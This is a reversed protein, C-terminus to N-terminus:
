LLLSVAPITLLSLMTTSFVFLSATEEDLDYTNALIPLLTAAPMASLLVTVGLLVGDHVFPKLAALFILPIVLLKVVIMIYMKANTLLSKINKIGAMIAGLIIMSLPTTMGGLLELPKEVPDPITISFCFLALAIFVAIIIPTKIITLFNVPVDRDYGATVMKIGFSFAFLNFLLIILATYLMGGPGFASSIVPIGMYATNPFTLGFMYLGRQKKEVKLAKCAIYAALAGVGFIACDVPLFEVGTRFEAPDFPRQLAVIITACMTVNVLLASLGKVADRGLLGKKQCVFGVAMCVFLELVSKSVTEFM